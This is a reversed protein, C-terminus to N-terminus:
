HFEKLRETISQKFLMGTKFTLFTALLIPLFRTGDIGLLYQVGISPIWSHREVFQMEHTNNNFNPILILSVLFTAFTTIASLWRILEEKQKPVFLMIPIAGILPLFIILSLIPFGLVNNM